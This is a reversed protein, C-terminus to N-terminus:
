SDLRVGAKRRAATVKVLVRKLAANRVFPMDTVIHLLHQVEEPGQAASIIRECMKELVSDFESFCHERVDPYTFDFDQMQIKVRRIDGMNKATRLEKKMVTMFGLDITRLAADMGRTSFPHEKTLQQYTDLMSLRTEKALVAALDDIVHVDNVSAESALNRLTRLAHDGEGVSSIHETM